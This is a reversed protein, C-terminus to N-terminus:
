GDASDTMEGKSAQLADIANELASIAQVLLGDRTKYATNTDDRVTQAAEAESELTAIDKNDAQEKCFCAYKDYAAAESKGEAEVEAQLKELLETVKEVPNVRQQTGACLAVGLLAFIM